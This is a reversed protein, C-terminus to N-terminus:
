KNRTALDWFSPPIGDEKGIESINPRFLITTILQKQKDDLQGERSMALYTKLLVVRESADKASHIYSMFLKVLIRILWIGIFAVVLLAAFALKSNLAEQTSNLVKELEGKSFIALIVMLTVTVVGLISSIIYSFIKRSSWYKVSSQLSLKKDYTDSINKLETETHIFKQKVTEDVSTFKKDFETTKIELLADTKELLSKNNITLLNAEDKVRKLEENMKSVIDSTVKSVADSSQRTVGNVYNYYEVLSVIWDNSGNIFPQQFSPALFHSVLLTGVKPNKLFVSECFKAEPTTSLLSRREVYANLLTKLQTIHGSVDQKNDVAVKLNKIHPKAKIWVFSMNSFVHALVADKARAETLWKWFNEEKTIFDEIDQHGHFVLKGGNSGFDVDIMYSNEELNAEM